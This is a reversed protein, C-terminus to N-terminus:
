FSFLLLNLINPYDVSKLYYLQQKLYIDLEYKEEKM